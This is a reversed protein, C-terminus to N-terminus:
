TRCRMGCDRLRQQLWPTRASLGGAVWGGTFGVGAVEPM